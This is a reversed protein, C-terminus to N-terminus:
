GHREVTFRQLTVPEGPGIGGKQRCIRLQQEVTDVGELAPLLLGRRGGSASVIAGYKAPDLGDASEVDEPASLVDVKIKLGPLESKRVPGFRHDRSCAWRANQVIEEALSPCSPTITGICGRLEGDPGHISVFVGARGLPVADAPLGAAGCEGTSVFADIAARALDVLPDASDM